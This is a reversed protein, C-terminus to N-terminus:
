SASAWSAQDGATSSFRRRQRDRHRKTWGAEHEDHRLCDSGDSLPYLREGLRRPSRSKSSPRKLSARAPAGLTATSMRVAELVLREELAGRTLTAVTFYNEM